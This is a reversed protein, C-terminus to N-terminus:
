APLTTVTGCTFRIEPDTPAGEIKQIRYNLGAADTLSEGPAPLKAGFLARAITVVVLVDDSGRRDFGPTAAALRPPIPEILAPYDKGRHRLTRGGALYEVAAAVQAAHVSHDFGM